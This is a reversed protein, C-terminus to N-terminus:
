TQETHVIQKVSEEETMVLRVPNYLSLIRQIGAIELMCIVSPIWCVKSVLPM